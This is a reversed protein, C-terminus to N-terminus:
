EDDPDNLAALANLWRALWEYAAEASRMNEPFDDLELENEYSKM